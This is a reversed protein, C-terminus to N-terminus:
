EPEDHCMSCDQSITTGETNAHDDDHCRWCGWGEEARQHGLHKGYTGWQINMEPWVNNMYTELLFEGAKKLDAEYRKVYDIGQRTTQAEILFDVMKAEAEERTNYVRNLVALSDERIGIIEPNIKKSLLGFDVREEPMDYIHTPRNHCDICDMTRWGGGHEADNEAGEKAEISNSVFEDHSGDPRSVRVKAIKLRREDAALYEVKVDKSVHWHIGEFAETVPNHGGIHLAINTTEPDTQNDNSFKVFTKVKKGTFKEPWHCHECTDRAPRLHEVPAPIPRNYSNTAVALVQRMGSIKARVFWQAGSGIHCEVCVVKAHPSRKYVEYEPEMVRHCVKGCFFPSDSFHYGEYGIVTLLVFFIVTLVIFYILMKRHRHDSLNVQLHDKAIGYKYWQRRRLFAAVPILILGTIMGGPLVLFALLPVYVNHSLGFIEVILGIVMLTASVTTLIVGILGLPTRWMGRIIHGWPGRHHGSDQNFQPNGADSM